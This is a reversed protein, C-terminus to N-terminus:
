VAMCLERKTDGWFKVAEEAVSYPIIFLLVARAFRGIISPAVMPSQAHM